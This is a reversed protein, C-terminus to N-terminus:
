NEEKVPKAQALDVWLKWDQLTATGGVLKKLVESEKDIPIHGSEKLKELVLKALAENPNIQPTTATMEAGM